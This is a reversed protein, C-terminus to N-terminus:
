GGIKLEIIRSRSLKTWSSQPYLEILRTYIGEAEDADINETLRASAFLARPALPSSSYEESLRKYHVLAQEPGGAEEEAAASNFLAVPALYSRPYERTLKGYTEVSSAWEEENYYYDGMLFLGRQHPYTGGYESELTNFQELLTAALAPRSEEDASSWERYSKEFEVLFDDAEEAKNSQAASLIGLILLLAILVGATSLLIIRYRQIWAALRSALSATEHKEM